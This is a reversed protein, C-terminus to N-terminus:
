YGDNEILVARIFLMLLGIGILMLYYFVEFVGFIYSIISVGFVYIIVYKTTVSQEWIRLKFGYVILFLCYILFMDLYNNEM